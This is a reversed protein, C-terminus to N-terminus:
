TQFISNFYHNVETQNKSRAKCYEKVRKQATIQSEHCFTSSNDDQRRKASIESSTYGEGLGDVIGTFSVNISTGNTSQEQLPIPKNRQDGFLGTWGDGVVHKDDKAQQYPNVVGFITYSICIFVSCLAFIAKLNSIKSKCMVGYRFHYLCYICFWTCWVM